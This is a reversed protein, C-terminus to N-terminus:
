VQPVLNYRFFCFSINSIMANMLRDRYIDREDSYEATKHCSFVPQDHILFSCPEVSIRHILKASLHKQYKKTELPVKILDVSLGQIYLTSSSDLYNTNLSFCGQLLKSTNIRCVCHLTETATLVDVVRSSGSCLHKIYVSLIM